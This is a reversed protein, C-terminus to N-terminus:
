SCAFSLSLDRCSLLRAQLQFEVLWRLVTRIQVLVQESHGFRFVMAFIEELPTFEPPKQEGIILFSDALFGECADVLEIRM